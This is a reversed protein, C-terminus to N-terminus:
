YSLEDKHIIAMKSLYCKGPLILKVADPKMLNWNPQSAVQLLYPLDKGRKISFTYKGLMHNNKYYQMTVNQIENSNNSLVFRFAAGRTDIAPDLKASVTDAASKKFHLIKDEDKNESVQGLVYPLMKLHYTQPVRTFLDPFFDYGELSISDGIIGTKLTEISQFASDVFVYAKKEVKNYFSVPVPLSNNFVVIDNPISDVGYVTLLIRHHKPFQKRIQYVSDNYYCCRFLPHTNVGISDKAWLTMGDVILRPKYNNYVHQFVSYHRISHPVKDLSNAEPMASINNVLVYNVKGAVMEDTFKRQLKNNHYFHVGQNFFHIPQDNLFFAALPRYCVEDIYGEIIKSNKLYALTKYKKQPDTEKILPMDFSNAETLDRSRYYNRLQDIRSFVTVTHDSAALNDDSMYNFRNVKEASFVPLNDTRIKDVSASYLSRLAPPRPFKFLWILSFSSVLFVFAFKLVSKQKIVVLAIFLSFILFVFSSLNDDTNEVFSHRILGRQFNVLYYICFFILATWHFVRDKQFGKRQLIAYCFILIVGVPFVFYHFRFKYNLIKSVTAYGWSQASQLYGVTLQISEWIERFGLIFVLLLLFLLAVFMVAAFLRKMKFWGNDFFGAIFPTGVCSTVFLAFGTDPRFLLMTFLLGAAYSLRKFSYGSNFYDYVVLFFLVAIAHYFPFLVQLTVSFVVWVIAYFRSKFLHTLFFYYVLFFLSHLCTYIKYALSLDKNIWAYFLGTLYDNFNHPSFHQFLPIEHYLYTRKIAMAASAEEFFDITGNFIPHYANYLAMGAVAFAFSVSLVSSSKQPKWRVLYFVVVLFLLVFSFVYGSQGVFVLRQNLLMVIEQSLLLYFPVLILGLSYKYYSIIRDAEISQRRFFVLLLFFLPLLYDWSNNLLSSFFQNLLYFFSISVLLDNVLSYLEIVRNKKSSTITGVVFFSLLMVLSPLYHNTFQLAVFVSGFCIWGFNLILKHKYIRRFFIYLVVTCFVPLIFAEPPISSFNREKYLKILTDSLDIKPKLFLYSLICGIACASLLHMWQQQNFYKGFFGNENKIAKKYISYLLIEALFLIFLWGSISSIFFSVVLGAVLIAEQQYYFKKDSFFVYCALFSCFAFLFFLGFFYSIQNFAVQQLCFVLAIKAYHNLKSVILEGDQLNLVARVIAGSFFLVILFFAVVRFYLTVRASVLINNLTAEGIMDTFGPVLEFDSFFLIVLFGIAYLLSAIPWSNNWSHTFNNLKM